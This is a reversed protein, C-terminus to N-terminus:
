GKALEVKVEAFVTELEQQDVDDGLLKKVRDRNPKGGANFDGSQNKEIMTKLIEALKPRRKLAEAAAADTEDQVKKAADKDAEVAEAGHNLAQQVFKTPVDLPVGKTFGYSPGVTTVMVFDRNMMLKM